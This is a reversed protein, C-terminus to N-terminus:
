PYQRGNKSYFSATLCKAHIELRTMVEHFGTEQFIGLLRGTDYENMEMGPEFARRSQLINFLVYAGPVSNKSFYV